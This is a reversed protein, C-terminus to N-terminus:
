MRIRLTATFGDPPYTLDVSGGIHSALGEILETGYGKSVPKSSQPGNEERWQCVLLGGKLEWTVYIKGGPVSAAGYKMANTILEHLIMSVPLVKSSQLEAPPGSTELRESLTTGVAAKVLVEFEAGRGLAAIEQARFTTDLRGLLAEKFRAM